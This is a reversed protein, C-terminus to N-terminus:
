WNRFLFIFIFLYENCICWFISQLTDKGQEGRTTFVFIKWKQNFTSYFIPNVQLLGMFNHIKTTKLKPHQHHTGVSNSAGVDTLPLFKKCPKIKWFLIKVLVLFEYIRFQANVIDAQYCHDFCEPLYNERQNLKLM